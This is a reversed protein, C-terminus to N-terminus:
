QDSSIRMESLASSPRLEVNELDALVVQRRLYTLTAQDWTHCTILTLQPRPTDETVTFDDPYVVFQERVKFTFVQEPTYILITEDPQM